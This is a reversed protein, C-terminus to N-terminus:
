RKPGFLKELELVVAEVPIGGPQAAALAISEMARIQDRTVDVDLHGLERLFVAALFTGTRKNGDAFAHGCVIGHLVVAAKELASPFLEVGDWTQFPRSVASFLKAADEGLTGGSAKIINDHLARSSRVIREIAHVVEEGDGQAM